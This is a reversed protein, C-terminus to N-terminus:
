SGAVQRLWTLECGASTSPQCREMTTDQDSPEIRDLPVLISLFIRTHMGTSAAMMTNLLMEGTDAFLAPPPAKEPKTSM